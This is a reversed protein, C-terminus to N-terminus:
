FEHYRGRIYNILPRIILYLLPAVLFAVGVSVLFAFACFKVIPIIDIM